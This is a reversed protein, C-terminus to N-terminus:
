EVRLLSSAAAVMDGDKSSSAAVTASQVQGGASEKNKQFAKKLKEKDEEPYNNKEMYEFAARKGRLLDGTDTLFNPREPRNLGEKCMKFKWGAPCVEEDELWTRPKQITVKVNQRREYKSGTEPVTSLKVNFNAMKEYDESTGEQKLYELAKERRCLLKGNSACYFTNLGVKRRMWSLPLAPDQLWSEQSMMARRMKDLDDTSFNNSNMYEFAKRVGMFTVDNPSKLRIVSKREEKKSTSYKFKWGEPYVSADAKWEDDHKISLEETLDQSSPTSNQDELFSPQDGSSQTSDNADSQQIYEERQSNDRLQGEVKSGSIQPTNPYQSFDDEPLKNINNQQSDDMPQFQKRDDMSQFQQSDDMPQFQQNEDMQRGFETQNYEPLQSFDCPQSSLLEETFDYQVPFDSSEAHSHKSLETHEPPELSSFEPDQTLDQQHGVTLSHSTDVKVSMEKLSNSLKGIDENSYNNKKMFALAANKGWVVQGSSTLIKQAFTEGNKVNKFRWGAPFINSDVEWAVTANARRMQHRMKLHNKLKEVDAEPYNKEEMFAIASKRSTFVKGSDTRIRVGFLRNDGRVGNSTHKYRWGVPYVEEDTLWSNDLQTQRNRKHNTQTTSREISNIKSNDINQPLTIRNGKLQTLSKLEAETPPPASFQKLLSIERMNKESEKSLLRIAFEKNKIYSGEENSLVISKTGRKYFWDEPLSSSSLWGDKNISRTLKDIDEKPFNNKKMFALAVRKGKFTVGSNSCVQMNKGSNTLRFKWGAPFIEEDELWTKNNPSTGEVNQNQQVTPSSTIWSSEVPLPKDSKINSQQSEDQGVYEQKKSTFVFKTLKEVADSAYYKSYSRVLDLAEEATQFVKGGQEMLVVGPAAMSRHMLWGDPVDESEEWGESKLCKKMVMIDRYSYMRSVIMDEFAERRSGFAAGMPSKIIFSDTLFSGEFSWGSPVSNDSSLTDEQLTDPQLHLKQDHSEDLLDVYSSDSVDWSGLKSSSHSVQASM